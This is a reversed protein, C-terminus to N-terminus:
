RTMQRRGVVTFLQFAFLRRWAVAPPAIEDRGRICPHQWDPGRIRRRVPFAPEREALHLKERCDRAKAVIRTREASHVSLRPDAQGSGM